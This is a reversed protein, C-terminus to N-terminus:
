RIVVFLGDSQGTQGFTRDTISAPWASLFILLAVLPTLIALEAGRLDLAQETVAPGPDRHLVASILRLMYMAALVIGGAGVAAWAWHRQFVGALILFEGAFNASGPVALSLVGATMLATALAPRGKAM